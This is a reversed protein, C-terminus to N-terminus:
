GYEMITNVVAVPLRSGTSLEITIAKVSSMSRLSPPPPPTESCKAVIYVVIIPLRSPLHSLTM